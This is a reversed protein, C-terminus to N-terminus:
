PIDKARENVERERERMREDHLRLTDNTSSVHFDILWSVSM